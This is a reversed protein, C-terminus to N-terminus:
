NQRRRLRCRTGGGRVDLLPSLLETLRQMRRSYVLKDHFTKTFM